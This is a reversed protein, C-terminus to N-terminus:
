DGRDFMKDDPEYQVLRYLSVLWFMTVLVASVVCYPCVAHIVALELYTLYLSYLVGILSAGFLGLLFLYPKKTWIIEGVALGLLLLYFGAGLIAVPVGMFESYPSTNVVDCGGGPECFLPTSAGLKIWTLYLSDLIGAVALIILIINIPKVKKGGSM